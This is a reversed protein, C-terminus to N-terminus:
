HNTVFEQCTLLSWVMDEIIEDRQLKASLQETWFQQESELPTRNLCRLYIAQVLSLPSTETDSQWRRVQGHPDSLSKNLMPGVIWELKGALSDQAVSSQQAAIEVGTIQEISRRLVDSPLSRPERAAYMELLVARTVPDVSMQENPVSSPVCRGYAESNAISKILHLWDYGHERWDVILADLLEPHSAPNSDRLDDIPEILGRGMMMFWARNVWARSISSDTQRQIYEALAPRPDQDPAISFHDLTLGPAPEGTVPHINAAGSVWDVRPSRRIGAFLAALGHYDDQTWHDLPHDHCNACRLRVGMMVESFLEAQSRGDKASLYFGVAGDEEISGNALVLGTLIGPLPSGMALAARIHQRYPHNSADSRKSNDSIKAQLIEMWRDTWYDIADESALLRDIVESRRVEHPALQYASIEEVTPVRGCLDITVRRLFALDDAQPLAHLGLEDLQRFVFPDILQTSSPTVARQSQVEDVQGSTFDDVSSTIQERLAVIIEIAGIKDRVRVLVVQRGVRRPQISMAAHDIVVAMPDHPILTALETMDNTSGDSYKAKVQIAVPSSDLSALRIRSPTVVIGTLTKQLEGPIRRHAGQHIWDRVQTWARSDPILREGGGHDMLESGKRLLLSEEPEVVNVRRGALERAIREFDKGPDQGFLSLQFGGRGIAAGHCAGSNCGSKTLIPLVTHDFDIFGLDDEAAVCPPVSVIAIPFICVFVELLVLALLHRVIAERHPWDSCRLLRRKFM